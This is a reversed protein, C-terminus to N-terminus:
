PTPELKMAADVAEDFKAPVKSWPLPWGSKEPISFVLAPIGEDGPEGDVAERKGYYFEIATYRSRLWRYRAAESDESLADILEGFIDSAEETLWGRAIYDGHRLTDAAARARELLRERETPKVREDPDVQPISPM